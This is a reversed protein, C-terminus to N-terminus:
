NINCSGQANCGEQKEQMQRIIDEPRVLEEVMDPREYNKGEFWDYYAKMLGQELDALTSLGAKIRREKIEDGVKGVVWIDPVIQVGFRAATDSDATVDVMQLRQWGWKKAFGELIYKQKQCYACTPSHFFILGMNDRMFPVIESRLDMRQKAEAMSAVLTPSRRTSMDLGPMEQRVEEVAEQFRKARISAIAQLAYLEKVRQKNSPDMVALDQVEDILKQFEKPHMTWVRDWPIKIDTPYEEPKNEKKAVEPKEEEKPKVPEPNAVTQSTANEEQVVEYWFYGKTGPKEQVDFWAAWVFCTWVLGLFFLAGFILIVKRM